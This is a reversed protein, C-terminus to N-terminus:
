RELSLEEAYKKGDRIGELKCTLSSDGTRHYTIKSPYLNHPSEFVATLTKTDISIMKFAVTKRDGKSPSGIERWMVFGNERPEITRYEIFKTEEGIYSKALGVMTTAVPQTWVEEYKGGWMTGKWSGTMFAFDQAVPATAQGALALLLAPIM